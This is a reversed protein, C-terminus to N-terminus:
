LELKIHTISLRSLVEAIFDERESDFTVILSTRKGRGMRRTIGEAAIRTWKPCPQAGNLWQGVSSTHVGFTEAIEKKTIGLETLKTLHHNDQCKAYQKSM